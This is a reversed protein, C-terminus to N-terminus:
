VQKSWDLRKRALTLAPDTGEARPPKTALDESAPAIQKFFDRTTAVRDALGHAVAQDATFMRGEGFNAATIEATVRTGRGKAVDGMFQTRADDLRGQMYVKSEESLPAFPSFETKHVGSFMETVNIGAQKLMESIDAHMVRVGVSGAEASPSLTIDTAQSALWYAASAADGTVMANVPKVKALAALMSATEPLGTIEGGPSDVALVVRKISADSMAKDAAASITDYTTGAWSDSKTLVGQIPIIMLKNSDPKAADPTKPTGFLAKLVEARLGRETRVDLLLTILSHFAEPKIAWIPNQLLKLLYEM